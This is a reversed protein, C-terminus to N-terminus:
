HALFGWMGRECWLLQQKFCCCSVTLRAALSAQVHKSELVEKVRGEVYELLSVVVAAAKGYAM